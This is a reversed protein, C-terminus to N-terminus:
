EDGINYEPNNLRQIVEYRKLHFERLVAWYNLINNELSLEGRWGFSKVFTKVHRWMRWLTNECSTVAAM